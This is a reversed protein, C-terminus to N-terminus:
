KKEFLTYEFTDLDFLAIRKSQFTALDLNIKHGECYFHPENTNFFYQVPSHGHVIYANPFSKTWKQRNLHGRDWLYYYEAPKFNWKSYKDELIPSYAGSHSLYIDKGQKNTYLACTPLADVKKLFSGLKKNQLDPLLTQYTDAGGNEMWWYLDNASENMVDWCTSSMMDEHNGKLFIVRPDAMLELLIKIGDPGRDVADGLFYITDDEACYKKIQSWLEYQGHIDTFAYTKSM